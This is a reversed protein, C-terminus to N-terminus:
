SLFAFAFFADGSIGLRLCFAFDNERKVNKSAQQDSGIERKQHTERSKQKAERSRSRSPAGAMGAM